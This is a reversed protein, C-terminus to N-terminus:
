GGTALLLLAIQDDHKLELETNDFYFRGNINFAYEETLLNEGAQIVDGELAPIERRLANIMDALTGGEDLELTVATLETIEDPLGYMEVVCKFM